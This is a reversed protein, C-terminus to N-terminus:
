LIAHKQKFYNNLKTRELTTLTRNFWCFEYFPMDGILSPTYIPVGGSNGGLALFYHKFVPPPTSSFM